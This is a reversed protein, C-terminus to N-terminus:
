DIPVLMVDIKCELGRALDSFTELRMDHEGRLRRSLLGEDVGLAIALSKQSFGERDKMSDFAKRIKRFIQLKFAARYALLEKKPIVRVNRKDAM